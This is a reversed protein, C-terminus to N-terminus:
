AGRDYFIKTVGTPYGTVPDTVVWLDNTKAGTPETAQRFIRASPGTGTGAQEPIQDEVAQAVADTYAALGQQMAILTEASLDIAGAPVPDGPKWGDPVNVFQLPDYPM